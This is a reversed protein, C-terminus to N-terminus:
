RMVILLRGVRDKVTELVVGYTGVPLIDVPISRSHDGAPLRETSSIWVTKANIDLVKITVKEEKLL